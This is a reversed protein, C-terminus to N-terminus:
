KGRVKIDLLTHRFAANHGLRYMFDGVNSAAREPYISHGSCIWSQCVPMIKHSRRKRYLVNGALAVGDADFRPNNIIQGLHKYDASDVMMMICAVLEINPYEREVVEKALKAWSDPASMDARPVFHGLYDKRNWADTDFNYYIVNNYGAGFLSRMKEDTLVETKKAMVVGVSKNQVVM